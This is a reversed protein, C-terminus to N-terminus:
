GEWLAASVGNLLKIRIIGIDVPLVQPIDLPAAISPSASETSGSKWILAVVLVFVFGILAVAILLGSIPPEM